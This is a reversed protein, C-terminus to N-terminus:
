SVERVAPTLGRGNSGAGAVVIATGAPTQGRGKTVRACAQDGDIAELQVAGRM